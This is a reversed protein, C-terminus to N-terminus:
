KRERVKYLLLALYEADIIESEPFETRDVRDRQVFEYSCLQALLLHMTNLHILQVIPGFQSAKRSHGSLLETLKVSLESM